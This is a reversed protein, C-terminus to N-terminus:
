WVEKGVSKSQTPESISRNLCEIEQSDIDTLLEALSKRRHIRRKDSSLM